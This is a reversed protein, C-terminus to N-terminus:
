KVENNLEEKSGYCYKCCGLEDFEHTCQSQLREIEDYAEAIDPNLVFIGVAIAKEIKNYLADVKEKIEEPKM